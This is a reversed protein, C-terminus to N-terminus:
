CRDTADGIKGIKNLM